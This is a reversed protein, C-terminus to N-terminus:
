TSLVFFMGSENVSRCWGRLCSCFEDAKMAAISDAIEEDLGDYSLVGDHFLKIFLTIGDCFADM